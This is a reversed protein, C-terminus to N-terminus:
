RSMRAKAILSVPPGVIILAIALLAADTANVPFSALGFAGPLYLIALSVLVLSLLASVILATRRGSEGWSPINSIVPSRSALPKVAQVLIPVVVIIIPVMTVSWFLTLGFIVGAFYFQPLLTVLPTFVIAGFLVVATAAILNGLTVFSVTATVFGRWTPYKKVFWGFLLFGFFNAPVGAILSLAPNTAGSPALFLVDGMFTGIGAGVAVSVTDSVVALFAPVFIGVLLQGVGWPTPIFGTLGKALAYSVATVAM